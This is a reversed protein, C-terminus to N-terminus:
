CECVDKKCTCTRTFKKGKPAWSFKKLVHKWYAHWEVKHAILLILFTGMALCPNHGTSIMVFTVGGLFFSGLIVGINRLPAWALCAAIILQMIALHNTYNAFNAQTYLIQLTERGAFKAIASLLMVTIVIAFLINKTNIHTRTIM